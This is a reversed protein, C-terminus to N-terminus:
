IEISPDKVKAPTQVKDSPGKSEAKQIRDNLSPKRLIIGKDLLIGEAIKLQDPKPAMTTYILNLIDPDQLIRSPINRLNYAKCEGTKLLAKVLDMNEALDIARFLQMQPCKSILKAMFATDKRVSPPILDPLCEFSPRNLTSDFALAILDKDDMISPDLQRFINGKKELALKALEKDKRFHLPMQFMLQHGNALIHAKAAERDKCVADGAFNFAIPNKSCIDLVAEKDQRLAHLKNLDPAPGKELCYLVWATMYNAARESDLFNRLMVSQSMNEYGELLLKCLKSGRYLKFNGEWVNAAVAPLMAELGGKQYLETLAKSEWREFDRPSVNNSASVLFVKNGEQITISKLIEHSM